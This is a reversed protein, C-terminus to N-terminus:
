FFYLHMLLQFVLSQSLFNFDSLFNYCPFSLFLFFSLAYFYLVSLYHIATDTYCPSLINPIMLGDTQGPEGACVTQGIDKMNLM